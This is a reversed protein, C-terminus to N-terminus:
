WKSAPERQTTLDLVIEEGSKCKLIQHEIAALGEPEDKRRIWQGKGVREEEYGDSDGIYYEYGHEYKKHLEDDNAEYFEGAIWEVQDKIDMWKNQEYADHEIAVIDSVDILWQRNGDLQVDGCYEALYVYSHDPGFMLGILHTIETPVSEIGIMSRVYGLVLLPSAHADEILSVKLRELPLLPQPYQVSSEWFVNNDVDFVYITEACFLVVFRDECVSIVDYTLEINDYINFSLFSLADLPYWEGTDDSLSYSYILDAFLYLCQKRKIHVIGHVHNFEQVHLTTRLLFQNLDASWVYHENNNTILHLQNNPIVFHPDDCAYTIPEESINWANGSVNIEVLTGSSHTSEIAIVIYMKITGNIHLDHHLHPVWKNHYIDFTFIDNSEMETEPMLLLQNSENMIYKAAIGFPFCGLPIFHWNTPKLLWVPQEQQLTNDLAVDPHISPTSSEHRDIPYMDHGSSSVIDDVYVLWQRNGDLQVDGCYEVLYVYSHDPGLMLEIMHTIETPVFEIGIADRFYGPVLSTHSDEILSAKLRELPRPFRINSQWFVNHDVDFVYITEACFFVVFRDQCVLIIDHSLEINDYINFSLFSLADLPCWEYPKDSLSYSYILDAFLYFCQKRKIHVIGHVHDFQKVHLTARRTFKNRNVNWVYHQNSTIIHLQNDLIVFHSHDCAYTIPKDSTNWKKRSVNIEILKGSSHTSHFVVYMKKTGNTHQDYHLHRMWKNHYIDFTFIDNSGIKTEPILLLKNNENIIYKAAVGFPFRGLPIFHSNAPQLKWVPQEDQKNDDSSLLYSFKKHTPTKNKKHSCIGM